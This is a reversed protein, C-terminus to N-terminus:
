EGETLDQPMPESWIVGREAGYKYFLEILAAFQKVSLLSTRQGVPFMGSMDLSPLFRADSRLADMFILKINEKSHHSIPTDAQQIDNCMAHLKSNQVDSRTEEAIKVVYGIPAVKVCEIAHQRQREGVLRITEVM